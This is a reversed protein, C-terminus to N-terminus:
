LLALGLGVIEVVEVAFVAAKGLQWIPVLPNKRARAAQPARVTRGVVTDTALDGTQRAVNLHTLKEM